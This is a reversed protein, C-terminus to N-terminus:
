LDSGAEPYNLRLLRAEGFRPLSLIYIGRYDHDEIAGISIGSLRNVLDPITNSHGAIVVTEGRHHTRVHEVLSEPADAEIITIELGTAAALPVLTAQTRRYESAFLASLGADAFMEAFVRAREEGAATLPPDAGEDLAKEAHRVLVVTSTTISAYIWLLLAAALVTGAIPLLLPTFLTRRRLNPHQKRM